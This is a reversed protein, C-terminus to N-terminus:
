SRPSSIASRAGARLTRAVFATNGWEGAQNGGIFWGRYTSNAEISGSSPTISSSTTTPM